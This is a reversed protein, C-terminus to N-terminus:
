DSVKRLITYEPITDDNVAFIIKQKPHRARDVM